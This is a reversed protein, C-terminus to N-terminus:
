KNYKRIGNMKAVFVNMVQLVDEMLEEQPEKKNTNNLIIIEGNSYKKILREIMDYGFRALRDKYAIVVERICGRIALDIIKNLGKRNMNIGSGIDKIIKHDPYRKRMYKEQRELDDKQSNSSVRVYCINMKNSEENSEKEKLYSGVDYLRKGGKTRITKIWGKEDWQYLTRQHVGLLESAKKGGLYSTM